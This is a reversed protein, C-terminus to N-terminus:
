SPPPFGPITSIVTRMVVGGDRCSQGGPTCRAALGSRGAAVGAVGRDGAYLYLLDALQAPSRAGDREIEVTGVTELVMGVAPGSQALSAPVLLGPGFLLVLGARIATMTKM